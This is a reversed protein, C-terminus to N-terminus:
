RPPYEVSNLVHLSRGLTWGRVRKYVMKSQFSAGKMYGRNAFQVRKVYKAYFKGDKKVAMFESDKFYLYVVFGSLKRLRKVSLWLIYRNARKHRKVVM